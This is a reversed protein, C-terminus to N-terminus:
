QAMEPADLTNAFRIEVIHCAYRAFRCGPTYTCIEVPPLLIFISFIRCLRFLSKQKKLAGRREREHRRRRMPLRKPVVSRGGAQRWERPAPRATREFAARTRRNKCPWRQPRKRRSGGAGACFVSEGWRRMVAGMGPANPARYIASSYHVDFLHNVIQPKGEGVSFISASKQKRLYTYGHNIM